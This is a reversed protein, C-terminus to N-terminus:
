DGSLPQSLMDGLWHGARQVKAQVYPLNHRTLTGHLPQRRLVSIGAEQMARVKEPNNTLLEIRRVGLNELIRVAVDYSREDPGFGLTGDADITDLGDDQLTYARFKNRLGIGRGEQALYLLVGGGRAQFVEMSGRLQEGCDCRLSGFLDGTLCASHLRVPVPDPWDSQRGVLIAVHEQLGHAERFLMFRSDEGEALPVPADGLRVVDAGSSRVFDDIECAGASLIAGEALAEELGHGHPRRVSVCVV